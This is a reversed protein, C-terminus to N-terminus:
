GATLLRALETRSRVGLRAFVNRLHHDVTRPSLHLQQAVERNTAGDAVLGAIREQQATLPPGPAPAPVREGAARLERAAQAAWPIADLRHFTEAAHRLHDRAERSRRHRRLHRAYLLETHARAFGAEDQRHRRLAERFHDDAAAGETARLARCRARLALWAPAGTRGAWRDFAAAAEDLDGPPGAGAAEILHPIVAVRLITSARGPPAAVLAALRASARGPRGEVLDLLAYAWDALDRADDRRATAQRCRAEGTARDGALAALVGLLALHTDALDHRGARGAAAAGDLAAATAAQHRGAALEAYAAAELAAPVVAHAGAARALAAARGALHAGRRDQGVLVGAMAAGILLNPDDVRDALALVARFNAFAADDAGSMLDAVGVVQRFALRLGAGAWGGAPGPWGGPGDGAPDDRPGATLGAEDDRRLRHVLAVYRGPDGSRCCAEGAVLLAELAGPLDVPMLEAAVDLLVDRAALPDGRLSLEATLGRARARVSTSAPVAAIRRLLPAAEHPRGALWFSRAADLLPVAPRTSLAAAYRQSVARLAPAAGASAARLDRALPDDPGETVAARHILGEPRGDLLRALTRHADRRRGAPADHWILDRLIPPIFRLRSAAVAVLGAREAPALAALDTLAALPAPRAAAILLLDQTARPLAAVAARLRRGLASSAPLGGPVAAFGRRQAPTLERAIDVLAAPSGGAAAIIGAAVEDALDPGLLERAARDSLPSLGAAPLGDAFPMAALVAVAAGGLRRAALKLLGWSRADLLDADDLVCLVPAARRLVEALDLGLRLVCSSSRSGGLVQGLRPPVLSSVPALLRQLGAYAVASEDAFGPASLVLWGDARGHAAAASLVASRGSGPAGTVVLTGGRARLLGRALEQVSPADVM